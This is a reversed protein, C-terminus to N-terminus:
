DRAKSKDKGETWIGIHQALFLPRSSLKCVNIDWDTLLNDPCACGRVRHSFGRLRTPYWGMVATPERGM